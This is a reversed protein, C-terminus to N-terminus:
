LALEILYADSSLVMYRVLTSSQNHILGKPRLDDITVFFDTDSANSTVHLRVSINGVVATDEELEESDFVIVDSRAERASQDQAGCKLSTNPLNTFPLNTGGVMPTPDTPDYIYSRRADLISPNPHLSSFHTLYLTLVTSPTPPWQDVSTWYDGITHGHYGAM